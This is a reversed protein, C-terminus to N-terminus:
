SLTAVCFYLVLIRTQEIVVQRKQESVILVILIVLLVWNSTKCPTRVSYYQKIIHIEM